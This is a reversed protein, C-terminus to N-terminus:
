GQGGVSSSQCLPTLGSGWAWATLHEGGKLPPAPDQPERAVELWGQADQM